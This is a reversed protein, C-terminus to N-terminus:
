SREPDRVRLFSALRPVGSATKGRYTYVVTAGPEPPRTRQADTLGTGLLFEVGEPTRVQLAGLRGLHRGRGAVHAVVVAEADALPKLKLLADSRGARWPADARHLMLGEGGDRVVEDFWRKLAGRDALRRQAAAQLPAFAADAVLRSLAAARQEFPGEGGRLDFVVYRVQRWAADVAAHRRVIGALDEFRGRGLWLEGDLPAAPLRSIFWQPALVPLGSRFRLRTGDWCARMGDLKESVLYGAPHLGPDAERALQLPLAGNGAAAAARPASLGSFAAAAATAAVLFQRRARTTPIEPM